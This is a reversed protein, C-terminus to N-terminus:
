PVLVPALVVRFGIGYNGNGPVNDDRFASRCYISLSYWSGGRIVRYPGGTTFPDTVAASSLNSISDLCWEYVNGHMDYLGFANPAHSGVPATGLFNCRANPSYSAYFQADPCFLDPGYHFETTTGARCAYKHEGSYIALLLHDGPHHNELDV